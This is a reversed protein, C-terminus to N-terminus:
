RNDDSYFPVGFTNQEYGDRVGTEYPTAASCIVYGTGDSFPITKNDFIRALTDGADLLM